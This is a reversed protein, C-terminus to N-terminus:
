FNYIKYIFNKKYISRYSNLKDDYNNIRLKASRKFKHCDLDALLDNPKYSTIGVTQSKSFKSRFFSPVM